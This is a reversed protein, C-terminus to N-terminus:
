FRTIEINGKNQFEILWDLEFNVNYLLHSLLFSTKLLMSSLYLSDYYISMNISLKCKFFINVNFFDGM